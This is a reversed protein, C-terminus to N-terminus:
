AERGDAQIRAAILAASVVEEGAQSKRDHYFKKNRKPFSAGPKEPLVACSGADGTSSTLAGPKV